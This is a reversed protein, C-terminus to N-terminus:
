AQTRRPEEGARLGSEPLSGASVPVFRTLARWGRGAPAHRLSRETAPGSSASHQRPPGPGENRRSCLNAFCPRTIGPCAFAQEGAACARSRDNSLTRMMVLRSASPVMAVIVLLLFFAIM